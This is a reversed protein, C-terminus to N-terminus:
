NFLKCYLSQFAVVECKHGFILSIFILFLDKETMRIIEQNIAQKEDKSMMASYGLIDTFMIAALKRQEKM